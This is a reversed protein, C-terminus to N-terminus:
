EYLTSDAYFRSGDNYFANFRLKSTTPITALSPANAYDVTWTLSSSSVVMDVLAVPTLVNVATKRSIASQVRTSIPASIETAESKYAISQIEYDSIADGDTDIEVTWTYEFENLAVANQNFVLTPPLAVLSVSFTAKETTFIAGASEIDIFTFAGDGSSDVFSRTALIKESSIQQESDDGGGCSSSGIALSLALATLKVTPSNLMTGARRSRINKLAFANRICRVVTCNQPSVNSSLPGWRTPAQAALRIIVQFPERGLHWAPPPGSSRLTLRRTRCVGTYRSHAGPPLRQVLKIKGESANTTWKEGTTDGENSVVFYDRSFTAKGGTITMRLSMAFSNHAGRAVM